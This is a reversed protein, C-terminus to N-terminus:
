PILGERTRGQSQLGGVGRCKETGGKGISRGNKVATKKDKVLAKSLHQKGAAIM